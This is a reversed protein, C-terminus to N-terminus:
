PQFLTGNWITEQPSPMQGPAGGGLNDSTVLIKGSYGDDGESNHAALRLSPLPPYKFQNFQGDRIMILRELRAEYDQHLGKFYNESDVASGRGFDYSLVRRVAEMRCLTKIQVKSSSPLLDFADGSECLFPIEYRVSMRLEVEGEAEDIIEELFGSSVANEEAPDNTFRVKGLLRERVEASTIYQPM